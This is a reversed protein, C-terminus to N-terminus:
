KILKISGIFPLSKGNETVVNVIGFIGLIFVCVNFVATLTGFVTGVINGMFVGTFIGFVANAAVSLLLLVLGENAHLKAEADDKYMILPLFFLIGWLYCLSFIVKKVIEDNNDDNGGHNEGENNESEDFPEEPIQNKNEDNM